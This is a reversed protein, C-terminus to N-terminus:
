PNDTSSTYSSVTFMGVIGWSELNQFDKKAAGPSSKILGTDYELTIPLSGKPNQKQPLLLLGDAAACVLLKRIIGPM